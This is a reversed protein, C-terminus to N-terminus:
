RFTLCSSLASSLPYAACLGTRSTYPRPKIEQLFLGDSYWHCFMDRRRLAVYVSTSTFCPLPKFVRCIWIPRPMDAFVMNVTKANGFIGILDAIRGAMDYLNSLVRTCVIALHAPRLLKCQRAPWRVPKGAKTQESRRVGRNAAGPTWPAKPCLGLPILQRSLSGPGSRRAALRSSSHIGNRLCSLPLAGCATRTGSVM